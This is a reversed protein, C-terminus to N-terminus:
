NRSLRSLAFKFNHPLILMVKEAANYIDERKSLDCTYTNVKAGLKRCSDATFENGEQQIDWLILNCGEEAFKYAM